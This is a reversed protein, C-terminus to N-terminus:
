PRGGKMIWTDENTYLVYTNNFDSGFVQNINFMITDLTLNNGWIDKDIYVETFKNKDMYEKLMLIAQYLNWSTPKYYYKEAVLLNAINGTIICNPYRISDEPAEANIMAALNFQEELCNAFDTNSKLDAGIFRTITTNEPLNSHNETYIIKM